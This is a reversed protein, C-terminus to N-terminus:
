KKHNQKKIARAKRSRESMKSSKGPDFATLIKKLASILNERKDLDESISTDFKDKEM